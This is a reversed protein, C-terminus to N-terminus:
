AAVKMIQNEAEVGIAWVFGILERAVAGLVKPQPKGRAALGVYRKHLRQQAKWAMARVSESQGVQRQKLKAVLAPRFRYSFAAECMVRRLHANGTKTIGGRRTKEGSSHESPVVGVYAMLAQANRFRSFNGVEAVLTIATIKAIGRMTQLSTVVTRQAEPMQTIVDDIAKELSVVRACGQQVQHLYDVFVYTHAVLSFHIASLWAMHATGWARIEDPKRLGQRLLFKSLRHRARLEDKKAAERARVLDRLAEHEKTQVWVSTLEGSRFLRALREADRRDTKVRDGARKPILTPAIVACSVDHKALEWYLAYGTPGAEYCTRLTKPNGLKKVLKRIAEPTNAITGLSKVSGDAEAVAVSITAAHADLGVWRTCDKM